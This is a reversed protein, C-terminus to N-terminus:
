NSKEKLKHLSDEPVLIIIIDPKENLFIEKNIFYKWQDWLFFSNNFGRSLFPLYYDGFSDRVIMANPLSDNKTTKRTEYGWPYAFKEPVVYLSTDVKEPNLRWDKLTVKPLNEICYKEIGLLKALDGGSKLRKKIDYEGINIEPINKFDKSIQKLLEQAVFYGGVHNLHHDYQRYLQYNNKHSLLVHRLDIINVETNERMYNLFQNTRSNISDSVHKIYKLPLRDFYISAKAPIIGLYFKSNHNKIFEHRNNLEKAITNLDDDSYLKKSRKGPLLLSNYFMWEDKGVVVREPLPNVDFIKFKLFNYINNYNNRLNFNDNFYTEYLKPFSEVEVIDFTPLKALARNETSKEIEVVRFYKNIFPFVLVLLFLWPLLRFKIYKIKSM